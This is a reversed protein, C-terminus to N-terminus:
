KKQLLVRFTEGMGFLLSKLQMRLRMQEAESGAELASAFSDPEGARLLFSALSEYRVTELGLGQGHAQLATFDVHATIDQDGPRLLVDEIAQHRHYSM